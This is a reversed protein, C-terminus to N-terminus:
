CCHFRMEEAANASAGSGSRMLVRSGQALDRGRAIEPVQEIAKLSDTYGIHQLPYMM